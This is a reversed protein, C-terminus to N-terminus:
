VFTLLHRPSVISCERSSFLDDRDAIIPFPQFLTEHLIKACLVPVVAFWRPIEQAKEVISRIPQDSPRRHPLPANPIIRVSTRRNESRDVFSIRTLFIQTSRVFISVRVIETPILRVLRAISGNSSRKVIAFVFTVDVLKTTRQRTQFSIKGCQMLGTPDIM